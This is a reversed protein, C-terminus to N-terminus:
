KDPSRGPQPHLARRPGFSDVLRINALKHEKM